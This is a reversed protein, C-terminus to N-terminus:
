VEFFKSYNYNTIFVGCANVFIFLFHRILSDYSLPSMNKIPLFPNFTQTKPSSTQYM